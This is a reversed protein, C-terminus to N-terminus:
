WCPPAPASSCHRATGAAWCCRPARGPRSYLPASHESSASKGGSCRHLQLTVSRQWRSHLHGRWVQRCAHRSSLLSVHQHAHMASIQCIRPQHPWATANHLHQGVLELVGTKAVLIRLNATSPASPVLTRASLSCEVAARRAGESM